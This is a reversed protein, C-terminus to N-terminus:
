PIYFIYFLLYGPKVRAMRNGKDPVWMMMMMTAIVTFQVACDPGSDTWQVIILVDIFRGTGNGVM